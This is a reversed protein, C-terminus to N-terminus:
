VAELSHKPAGHSLRGEFQSILGALRRGAETIQFFVVEYALRLAKQLVDVDPTSTGWMRRLGLSLLEVLDHGQCLQWPDHGERLAEQVASAFREKASAELKNKMCILDILRAQDAKLSKPILYGEHKIEKFDLALNDRASVLRAAGMASASTLLESRVATSIEELESDATVSLTRHLKETSAFERILKTLAPSRVYECEIDHMDSVIIAPHNRIRNLIRDFDADVVGVFWDREGRQDHLIYIGECVYDKGGAPYFQVRSGFCHELIRRDSGGEVVLIPVRTTQAARLMMVASAVIEGTILERM